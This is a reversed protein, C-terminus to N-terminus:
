QMERPPQPAQERRITFLGPTAPNVNVRVWGVHPSGDVELRIFNAIVGGSAADKLPRDVQYSHTDGHVFLLPKKLWKAHTALVTRLSEFGDAVGAPRKWTGEFDPNAQIFVVLAAVGPQEAAKVAEDLWEFNAAMRHRYEVDMQATRGLNNNSGPINLGVFMVERFQWRVNESFERYRADLESQRELRSDRPVVNENGTSFLQRFRTLREMPDFGGRHCDTWDNDGPVLLFPLTFTQFLAKRQAFVTDTCRGSGSIIDGVHVVFHLDEGNMAKIMPRLLSEERADYPTDGMVAFSWGGPPIPPQASCSALLFVLALAFLRNM